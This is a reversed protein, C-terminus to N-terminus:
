EVEITLLIKDVYYQAEPFYQKELTLLEIARSKNGLSQEMIALEFRVGPPVPKNKSPAKNIIGELETKHRNFAHSDDNKRYDYLTNQYNGWYYMTKATCGTLTTVCVLLCLYAIKM